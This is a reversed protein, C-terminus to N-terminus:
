AEKFRVYFEVLWSFKFRFDLQNFMDSLCLWCDSVRDSM